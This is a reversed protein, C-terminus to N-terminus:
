EGSSMLKTIYADIGGDSTDVPTMYLWGKHIKQGKLAEYIFVGKVNIGGEDLSDGLGDTLHAELFGTVKGEEDTNFSVRKVDYRVSPFKGHLKEYVARVQKPGQFNRTPFCPQISEYEECFCAEVADYDKRNVANFFELM